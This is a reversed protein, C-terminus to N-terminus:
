DLFYSALDDHHLLAVGLKSAAKRAAPTFTSNTIVCAHDCDYFSMASFAEQVSKNGVTSRYFKCQVAVRSGDHEAIVDAGHDGSGSTVKADWGLQRILDAVYEEYEHGSMSHQFQLYTHREEAEIEQDLVQVWHQVIEKKSTDSYINFIPCGLFDTEAPGLGSTDLPFLVSRVFYRLEKLWADKRLNGYDDAFLTQNKKRALVEKHPALSNCVLQTMVDLDFDRRAAFYQQDNLLHRPFSGSPTGGIASLGAALKRLKARRIGPVIHFYPTGVAIILLVGGWFIWGM